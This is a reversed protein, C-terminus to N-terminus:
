QDGDLGTARRSSSARRGSDVWRPRKGCPWVTLDEIATRSYTVAPNRRGASRLNAVQHKQFDSIAPGKAFRPLLETSPIIRASLADSLFAKGSALSGMRRTSKCCNVIWPPTSAASAPRTRGSATPQVARHPDKEPPRASEPLGGRPGDLCDIDRGRQRRDGVHSRGQEIPM